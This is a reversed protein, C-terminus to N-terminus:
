GEKEQKALGKRTWGETCFMSDKATGNWICSTLYFDLFRGGGLFFFKAVSDGTFM